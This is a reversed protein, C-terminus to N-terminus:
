YTNYTNRAASGIIDHNNNEVPIQIEELISKENSNIDDDDDNNCKLPLNHLLTYIIFIYYLINKKLLVFM